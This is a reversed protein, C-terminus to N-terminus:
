LQPGYDIIMDPDGIYHSLALLFQTHPNCGWACSGRATPLLHSVWQVLSVTHSITVAPGRCCDWLFLLLEENDPVQQNDCGKDSIASFFTCSSDM